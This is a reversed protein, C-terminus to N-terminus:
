KKTAKTTQDEGGSCKKQYSIQMKDKLVEQLDKPGEEKAGRGAEWSVWMTDEGGHASADARLGAESHVQPAWHPPVALPSCLWFTESLHDMVLPPWPLAEKLLEQSSCLLMKEKLVYADLSRNPTCILFQMSEQSLNVDGEM